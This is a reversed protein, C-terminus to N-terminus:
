LGKRRKRGWGRMEKDGISYGFGLGRVGIGVDVVERGGSVVEDKGREGRSM